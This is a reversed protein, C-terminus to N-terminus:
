VNVEYSGDSTKNYKGIIRPNNKTEMIDQPEYINNSDDIYYIIGKIDEAWVFVKKPQKKNLMINDEYIGHPTGKIHTGCFNVGDRKRRTCQEGNARKAHCRDYMPVVNKVRKRKTFDSKTIEIGKYSNYFSTILSSVDLENSELHKIIDSVLEKVYNDVKKSLRKEM